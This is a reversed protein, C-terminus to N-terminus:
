PDFNVWGGKKLSYMWNGDSQDGWNGGGQISKINQPYNKKMWNFFEGNRDFLKQRDSMVAHLQDELGEVFENYKGTRHPGSFEIGYYDWLENTDVGEFYEKVNVLQTTSKSRGSYLVQPVAYGKETLFETAFKEYNALGSINANYLKIM